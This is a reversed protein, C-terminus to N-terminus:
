EKTESDSNNQENSDNGESDENVNISELEKKWIDTLSNLEEPKLGKVKKNLGDVTTAKTSIEAKAFLEIAKEVSFDYDGIKVVDSKGDLDSVEPLGKEILEDVNEPLVKFLSKRNPNEILLELAKEDTVNYESIVESTGRIPIIVGGELQFKGKNQEPKTSMIKLNKYNKIRHIYGPIKNPCGECTQGFLKLHLRFVHSLYPISSEDKGKMLTLIDADRIFKLIEDDNNKKRKSQSLM